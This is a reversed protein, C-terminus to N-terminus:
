EFIGSRHNKLHRAGRHARRIKPPARLDGDPLYDGYENIPPATYYAVASAPVTETLFGRTVYLTVPTPSDFSPPFETAPQEGPATLITNNEPLSTPLPVFELSNSSFPTPLSANNVTVSSFVSLSVTSAPTNDRSTLVVPGSGDDSYVKLANVTWYAESFAGPNNKVYDECSSGTAACTSDQNWVAGAWDGASM